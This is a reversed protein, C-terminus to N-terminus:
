IPAARVDRYLSTGSINRPSHYSVMMNEAGPLTEQAKAKRLSLPRGVQVFLVGQWRFVDRTAIYM